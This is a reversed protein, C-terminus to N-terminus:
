TNELFAKGMLIKAERIQHNQTDIENIKKIVEIAESDGQENLANIVPLLKAKMEINVRGAEGEPITSTAAYIKALNDSDIQITQLYNDESNEKYKDALYIQFRKSLQEFCTSIALLIERNTFTLQIM